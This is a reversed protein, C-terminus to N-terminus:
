PLEKIDDELQEAAPRHKATVDIQGTVAATILAVRREKALAIALTLDATATAIESVEFQLRDVISLQEPLSPIPITLDRFAGVDLSPVAGPLAFQSVSTAGLTYRLYIPDLGKEPIIGLMNNDICSSQALTAFRGLHLAAGIKAMVCTGHPFVTAGLRCATERDITHEATHLTGRNAGALSGVKFFPLEQDLRGQEAHPFGSGGRLTAVTKLRRLPHHARASILTSIQQAALREESLCSTRELDAILADIEATEHDLYDVIRQAETPRPIPLRTSAFAVPDLDWQNPRIGGSISHWYASFPRSRLLYHYFTGLTPNSASYVYYAPSVIGRHQSIGLSGQWAKMKNVVLDGPTVLLYNSLDESARNFNDERSAKPIVGHDRYVSLLAEEESDSRRVRKFLRKLPATDWPTEVNSM